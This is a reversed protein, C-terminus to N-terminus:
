RSYRSSPVPYQSWGTRPKKKDEESEAGTRVASRLLTVRGKGQGKYNKPVLAEPEKDDWTEKNSVSRNHRSRPKVVTWPGNGDDIQEGPTVALTYQETVSQITDISQVSPIYSIQIPTTERGLRALAADRYSRPTRRRYERDNVM